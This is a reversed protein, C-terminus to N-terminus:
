SFGLAVTGPTGDSLRSAEGGGGGSDGADLMSMSIASACGGAPVRLRRGGQEGGTLRM